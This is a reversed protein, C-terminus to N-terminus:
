VSPTDKRIAPRSLRDDISIVIDQIDTLRKELASIRLTLEENPPGEQKANPPQRNVHKFIAFIVLAVLVLGLVGSFSANRQLTHAVTGSALIILSIGVAITIITRM